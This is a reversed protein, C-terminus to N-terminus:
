GTFDSNNKRRLRKRIELAGIILLVYAIASYFLVASGFQESVQAPANVLWYVINICLYLWIPLGIVAAIGWLLKRTGPTM